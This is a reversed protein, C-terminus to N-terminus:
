CFVSKVKNIARRVLSDLLLLYKSFLTYNLGDNNSNLYKDPRMLEPFKDKWKNPNRTAIYFLYMSESFGVTTERYLVTFGSEEFLKDVAFPTFRWYDKYGRHYDHIRQFQPVVFIVIDNSLLCLNKFATFIDFIHEFVTHNFVVDYKMYTKESLTEELDLFIMDTKDLSYETKDNPYNSVTYSDSNIFYEKYKKGSDYNGVYYDYLSSNKDSDSSGSVNIIKGSFMHAFRELIVNTRLRPKRFVGECILM